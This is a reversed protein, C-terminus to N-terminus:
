QYIPVVCVTFCINVCVIFCLNIEGVGLVQGRVVPGQVWPYQFAVVGVQAGVVRLLVWVAKQCGGRVERLRQVQPVLRPPTGHDIYDIDIYSVV